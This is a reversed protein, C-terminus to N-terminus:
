GHGVWVGAAAAALGLVLLVWHFIALFRFVRDPSLDKKGGFLYSFLRKEFLLVLSFLTWVFVMLTVDVGSSTFLDGWRGTEFLLAFGTVGALIIFARAQKAFRGEIKQFLLVKQLSDETKAMAPFFVTTVFGVGGMWLIVSLVHVSLLFAHM